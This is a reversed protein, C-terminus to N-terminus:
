CANLTYNCQDLSGMGKRPEWEPHTVLCLSKRRFSPIKEAQQATFAFAEIGKKQYSAKKTSWHNTISQIEQDLHAVQTKLTDWPGIYIKLSTRTPLVSQVVQLKLVM